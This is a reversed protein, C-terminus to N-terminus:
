AIAACRSASESPVSPSSAGSTVIATRGVAVAVPRGSSSFPWGAIYYQLPAPTDIEVIIRLDRGHGRWFDHGVAVAPERRRPEDHALLVLDQKVLIREEVVGASDPGLFRARDAEPHQPRPLIPPDQFEGFNMNNAESQCYVLM